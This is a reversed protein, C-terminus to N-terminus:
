DDFRDIDISKVGLASLIRLALAFSFTGRNIKNAINRGNDEVGYPKLIEAIQDWSMGHLIREANILRTARTRWCARSEETEM